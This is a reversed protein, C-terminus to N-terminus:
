RKTLDMKLGAKSLPKKTQDILHNLSEKLLMLKIEKEALAIEDLMKSFNEYETKLRSM